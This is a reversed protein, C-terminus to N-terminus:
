EFSVTASAQRPAPPPQGAPYVSLEIVDGPIASISTSTETCTKAGDAVLCEITEFAFPALPNATPSRRTLVFRYSQEGSFGALDPPADLAVQLNRLIGARPVVVFSPALFPNTTAGPSFALYSEIAANNLQALGTSWFFFSPAVPTAGAPGTAGTEGTPGPPGAPGIPGQLGMTGSPGTPGAPGTPGEAGTAGAPGAPGSPGAPGTPGAPGVEGVTIDLTGRPKNAVNEVALMYTGPICHHSLLNALIYTTRLEFRNIQLPVPDEGVFVKPDILAGQNNLLALNLGFIEIAPAASDCDTFAEYIVPPPTSTSAASAGGPGLLVLSVFLLGLIRRAACFSAPGHADVRM